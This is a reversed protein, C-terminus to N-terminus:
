ANAGAVTASPPTVHHEDVLVRLLVAAGCQASVLDPNFHKDRDFKGRTYHQSFSWLYPSPIPHPLNRYGFGNFQEFRFLAHSISWDDQHAFGEHRLADHASFEWTFPPHGDPPRGAPVNVTRATLPDGNHLHTHFNGSGELQHVIGLFWWPVDLPKGTAKYRAKHAMLRRITHDVDPQHGPAVKASSFLERYNDRLAAFTNAM